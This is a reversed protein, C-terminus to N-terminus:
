LFWADSFSKLEPCVVPYEDSLIAFRRDVNINVVLEDIERLNREWAKKIEWM